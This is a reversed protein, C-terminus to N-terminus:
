AGEGRLLGLREASSVLEAVSRVEMKEMVKHRHAKVTRETTGLEFATQKNMKGRVVLDFVERERPTLKNLRARCQRAWCEQESVLRHRTIVRDIAEIFEDREVPKPLVDEAGAKIARVTMRIDSDGALFIVPLSSGAAILRDRLGPGGVDPIQLDIVICSEVSSDPLHELIEDANRYGRMRYGSAELVPGIRARFAADNDVLHVLAMISGKNRTGTASRRVPAAKM